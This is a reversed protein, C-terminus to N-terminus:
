KILYRENDIVVWDCEIEISITSDDVLNFIYFTTNDDCAQTTKKGVIKSNLNNYIAAIQTEDVVEEFSDGGETLKKIYLSSINDVKISKYHDLEMLAKGEEVKPEFDENENSANKRFLCSLAICLLILTILIIIWTINRKKM